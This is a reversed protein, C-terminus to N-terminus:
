RTRPTSAPSSRCPKRSSLNGAAALYKSRNCYPPSPSSMGSTMSVTAQHRDPCFEATLTSTLAGQSGQHHQPIRRPQKLAASPSAYPIPTTPILASPMTNSGVVGAPGTGRPLAQAKQGPPMLTPASMKIVKLWLDHDAALAAESKFTDFSVHGKSEGDPTATGGCYQTLLTNIEAPPLSWRSRNHNRRLLFPRAPIVVLLFLLAPLMAPPSPPVRFVPVAHLCLVLTALHSSQSRGFRGIPYECPNSGPGGFVKACFHPHTLRRAIRHQSSVSGHREHFLTASAM